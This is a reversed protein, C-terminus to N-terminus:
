SESDPLVKGIEIGILQLVDIVVSNGFQKYAQSSSPCLKYSDPFGQATLDAEFDRQSLVRVAVKKQVKKKTLKIYKSQVYGKYPTGYYDFAIQYWKQKKVTRVKTITVYQKKALVLEKGRIKYYAGKTGPKKRVRLATKVGTVLGAASSKLNMKVDSEKIYGKVKKKKIKYQVRFWKTKGKTKEGLITVTKGKKMVTRKKRATNKYIITNKKATVAKVSVAKYSVQTRYVTVTTPQPVATPATTQEAAPTTTPATTPAATPATGKIVYEAAAYGEKGNYTIKVWNHGDATGADEVYTITSGNPIKVLVSGAKKPESRMNLDAGGTKVYAAESAYSVTTQNAVGQPTFLSMVLCLCLWLSMRLKM